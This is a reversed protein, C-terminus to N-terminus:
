AASEARSHQVALEIVDPFAIAHICGRISPAFRALFPFFDHADVFEIGLVTGSGDLDAMIETELEVTEAVEGATLHIYLARVDPSYDFRM